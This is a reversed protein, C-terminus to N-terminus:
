VVSGLFSWLNSLWEHPIFGLSDMYQRTSYWSWVVRAEM